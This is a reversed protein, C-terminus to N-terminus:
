LELETFDGLLSKSEVIKFNRRIAVRRVIETTTALPKNMPLLEGAGDANATNPKTPAKSNMTIRPSRSSDNRQSDACSSNEIQAAKNTTATGKELRDRIATQKM